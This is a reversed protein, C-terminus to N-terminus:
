DGKKAIAGVPCFNICAACDICKDFVEIRGGQFDLNQVPCVAVCGTCKACKEHNIEVTM